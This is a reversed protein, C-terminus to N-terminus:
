LQHSRNEDNLVIEFDYNNVVTKAKLMFDTNTVITKVINFFTFSYDEVIIKIVHFFHILKTM